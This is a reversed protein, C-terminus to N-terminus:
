MTKHNIISLVLIILCVFVGISVSVVESIVMTMSATYDNERFKDCRPFCTNNVEYFDERCTINFDEWTNTDNFKFTTKNLSDTHAIYTYLTNVCFYLFILLLEAQVCNHCGLQFM